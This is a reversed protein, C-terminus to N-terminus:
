PAFLSRWLFQEDSENIKWGVAHGRAKVRELFALTTSNPADSAQSWGLDLKLRLDAKGAPLAAAIASLAEGTLAHDKAYVSDFAAPDQGFVALAVDGGRGIGILRLTAVDSRGRLEPALTRRLYDALAARETETWARRRFTQAVAEDAPAITIVLLAEDAAVAEVQRAMAAAAGVDAQGDIVVVARIPASEADREGVPAWTRILWAPSGSDPGKVVAQQYAEDPVSSRELVTVGPTQAAASSALAFCSFITIVTRGV